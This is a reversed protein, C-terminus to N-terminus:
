IVYVGVFHGGKFMSQMSLWRIFDSQWRIMNGLHGCLAVGMHRRRKKLGRMKQESQRPYLVHVHLIFYTEGLDRLRTVM